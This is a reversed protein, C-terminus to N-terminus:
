LLRREFAPRDIGGRVAYYAGYDIGVALFKGAWVLRQDTLRIAKSISHCKRIAAIRGEDGIGLEVLMIEFRAFAVWAIM